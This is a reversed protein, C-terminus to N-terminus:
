RETHRTIHHLAKTAFGPPGRRGILPGIPTFPIGIDFAVNQTGPLPVSLVAEVGVIDRTDRARRARQDPRRIPCKSVLRYVYISIRGAADYSLDVTCM